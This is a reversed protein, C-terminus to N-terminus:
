QKWGGAQSVRARWVQAGQVIESATADMPLRKWSVQIAAWKIRNELTMKEAARCCPCDTGHTM